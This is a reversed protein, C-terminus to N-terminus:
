KSKILYWRIKANERNQDCWQSEGIEGKYKLGTTLDKIKVLKKVSSKESDFNIIKESIHSYQVKEDNNEFTADKQINLSCVQNETLIIYDKEM